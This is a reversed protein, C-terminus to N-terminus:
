SYRNWTQPMTREASELAPDVSTFRGQIASYYRVEFYDLGTENDREKSTFHHRVGDSVSYGQATTRGGTGAFLEQGFPLYDHRSVVSGTSNTIVRASGLNDATTYRTGNSNVATPEITIATAGGYVYEKKLSGSSSDFEAILEGGIGYVFRTNEGVLKRVRQ